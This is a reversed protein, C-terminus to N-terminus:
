FRQNSDPTVHVLKETPNTKYHADIRKSVLKLSAGNLFFEGQNTVLVKDVDM